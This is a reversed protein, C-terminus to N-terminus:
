YPRARLRARKSIERLVEDQMDEDGPLSVGLWSELWKAFFDLGGADYDQATEIPKVKAFLQFLTGSRVPANKLVGHSLYLLRGAEHVAYEVHHLQLREKAVWRDAAALLRKLHRDHLEEPSLERIPRAKKPKKVPREEVPTALYKRDNRVLKEDCGLERAITRNLKGAEVGLAVYTRRETLNHKNPIIETTSVECSRTLSVPKLEAKTCPGDYSM